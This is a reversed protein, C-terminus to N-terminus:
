AAIVGAELSAIFPDWVAMTTDEKSLGVAVATEEKSLEVILEGCCGSREPIAETTV